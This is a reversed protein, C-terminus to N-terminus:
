REPSQRVASSARQPTAGPREIKAFHSLLLWSPFQRALEPTGRLHIQADRLADAFTVHGLWVRVMAATDAEVILDVGLGPDHLCVEASPRELLLWFRRAGRYSPPLGRYDFEVVVRHDPLRDTALRRRINWMLLGADLNEDRVPLTWRQGWAGLAELVPRFEEGAPTLRWARGAAGHEPDAVSAIVGAAELERLRQALLARSMLPICRHIENFHQSGAFLERLLIPTWRKSFVECAVAIPCFQGFGERM